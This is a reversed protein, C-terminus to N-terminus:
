IEKINWRKWLFDLMKERRVSITEPSWDDNEAVEIASYSGNRFKEKKQAFPSNQLKANKKHSLLLLNGLDHLLEKAANSRFKGWGTGPNQPYIHEITEFNIDEWHVKTEGNLKQLQLEYEYLFYKLAPWKYFGSYKNEITAQFEKKSYGDSINFQSLNFIEVIKQDTLTYPSNHFKNAYRYITSDGKNSRHFQIYFAVFVFQEAFKLIRLIRSEGVEDVNALLSTILPTFAGFTNRNLKSLLKKVDDLYICGSDDPNHLYYYPKVVRQIDIVYSRIHCHKLKGSLINEATFHTNLLFDKYVKSKSRDYEDFYMIWHVKLFDDDDLKNEPNKGLYEYVTKWVNNIDSRLQSKEGEDNNKLLTSLYILRNKLLELDSLPKGRNNMTEFAVFESLEDDIQYYNFKLQQTVKKILIELDGFKMNEIKKRFFEKAAYLNHTYLTRDPTDRSDSLELIKTIFYVDSPNDKEYGFVVETCEGQKGTKYYLYRKEYDAKERGNIWNIEKLQECTCIVKILIILSTIRQQGDVIHIHKEKPAVSLVGTYHPQNERLIEVDRWLDQLQQAGWSYGRQYDPIRFIRENFISQLSQLDM